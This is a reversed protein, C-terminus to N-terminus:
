KYRKNLNTVEDVVIDQKKREFKNETRKFVFAHKISPCNQLASDVTTKLDILKGGRIGQNM